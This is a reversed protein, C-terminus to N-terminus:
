EKVATVHVGMAGHRSRRLTNELWSVASLIRRACRLAWGKIGGGPALAQAAWLRQPDPSKDLRSFFLFDLQQTLWYDAHRVGSVRLGAAAILELLGETTFRQRHGGWRAKTEHGRRQYVTGPNGECPVYLHLLGGPALVRAAESLVRAPDDVHELIDFGLVGAFTRDTYPLAAVDARCAVAGPV